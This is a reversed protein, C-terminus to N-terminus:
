TIVWFGKKTKWVERVRKCRIIGDWDYAAKEWEWFGKTIDKVRKIRHRTWTQAKECSRLKMILSRDRMWAWSSKWGINGTNRRSNWKRKRSIKVEEGKSRWLVDKLGTRVKGRRLGINKWSALTKGDGWWWIFTWWFAKMEEVATELDLTEM